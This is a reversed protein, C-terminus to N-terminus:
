FCFLSLNEAVPMSFIIINEINVCCCLICCKQRHIILITNVYLILYLLFLPLILQKKDLTENLYQLNTTQILSSKMM